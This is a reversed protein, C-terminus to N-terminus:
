EETVIEITPRDLQTMEVIVLEIEPTELKPTFTYNVPNSPESDIFDVGKAKVTVAYTGRDLSISSLYITNEWITTVYVNEVYIDYAVVFAGNNPNDTITLLSTEENLEISPAFLQPQAGAGGGGQRNYLWLMNEVITNIDAITVGDAANYQEGTNIERPNKWSPNNPWTAM